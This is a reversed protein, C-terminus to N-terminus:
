IINLQKSIKKLKEIFFQLDKENHTAMISARLRSERKKVAPYVVPNVFIGEEELRGTIQYTLDENGIIVPIIASETNGIDFGFNILEKKIYNINQWLQSHWKPENKLIELSKLLSACIVPPLSTSFVFARSTHKLYHIINKSSVVFGGVGGLAKSLTGMTLDIKGELNFYEATGKGTKGLVGTSHADDIMIAANYKKGLEYITDLKAVDGDMSFVGDTIIIKPKNIDIEQLKKELNKMNNHKFIFLNAMSLRCGDIISAHSKEDIILYDKKNILGSIVGVNTGYGSTYVVCDDGSKLEALKKELQNHLDMTGSLVRVSGSGVGYKEIAKIAAEKVEPHITLGLYNNSAFNILEKGNRIIKNESGSQIERLYFYHDKKMLKKMRNYRICKLFLPKNTRRDTKRKDSQTHTKKGKRRGGKRRDIIGSISLNSDLFHELQKSEEENQINYFSVGYQFHKKKEMGWMIRGNGQVSGYSPPLLLKFNVRQSISLLADTYITVGQKSLDIVKGTIKKTKESSGSQVELEINMDIHETIFRPFDRRKLFKSASDLDLHSASFDGKNINNIKKPKMIVNDGM